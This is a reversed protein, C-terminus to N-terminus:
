RDTANLVLNEEVFRRARIGTEADAGLRQLIGNLTLLLTDDDDKIEVVGGLQEKEVISSYDGIGPTVLVPLGCALYEAFKVPSAVANVPDSERLLLGFDAAPLYMAVEQSPVSIVKFDDAGLGSERLMAMLREPETTIGLFLADPRHRKILKFMRIGQDPLQYWALSGLYSIVLRDGLGLLKRAAQKDPLPFVSLDVACPKLTMKARAAGYREHLVEAMAESVVIIRDADCAHRQQQLKQEYAAKVKGDWLSKDWRGGIAGVVEFPEDGRCDFVTQPKNKLGSIADLLLSAANSNRGYVVSGKSGALSMRLGRRLAAVELARCRLRSTGGFVIRTSIGYQNLYRQLQGRLRERLRSRFVYGLPLVAIVLGEAGERRALESLSRYVQSEVIPSLIENGILHIRKEMTEKEMPKLDSAEVARKM